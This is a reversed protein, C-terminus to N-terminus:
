QLSLIGDPECGCGELFGGVRSDVVPGVVVPRPITTKATEQTSCLNADGGVWGDVGFGGSWFGWFWPISQRWSDECTVEAGLRQKDVELVIGSPRRRTIHQWQLGNRRLSRHRAGHCRFLEVNFTRTLKRCRAFQREIYSESSLARPEGTRPCRELESRHAACPQSTPKKWEIILWLELSLGPQRSRSQAM